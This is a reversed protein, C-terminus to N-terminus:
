IFHEFKKTMRKEIGTVVDDRGLVCKDNVLQDRSRKPSACNFHEARIIPLVQVSHQSRDRRFSPENEDGVGIIWSARQKRLALDLAEHQLNRLPDDDNEIFGIEFEKITGRIRELENAFSSVNNNQARKRLNVSQGAQTDPIGNPRSIQDLHKVFCPLWKVHVANSLDAREGRELIVLMQALCLPRDIFAASIQVFLEGFHFNTKHGAGRIKHHYINAVSM